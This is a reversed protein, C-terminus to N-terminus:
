RRGGCAQVRFEIDQLLVVVQTFYPFSEDYDDVLGVNEGILAFRSIHKFRAFSIKM